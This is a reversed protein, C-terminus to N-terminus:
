KEIIRIVELTENEFYEAAQRDNRAIIAAFDEFERTMRHHVDAPVFYEEIVPRVTAGAADKTVEDSIEDTLVITLNDAINPKGDIRM